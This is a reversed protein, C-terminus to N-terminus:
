QSEGRQEWRARQQQLHKLFMQIQRRTAFMPRSDKMGPMQTVGDRLRPDDVQWADALDAVTRLGARFLAEALGEFRGGTANPLSLTEFPEDTWECDPCVEIETGNPLLRYVRGNEIRTM